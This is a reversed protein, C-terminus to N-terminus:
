VSLLIRFSKAHIELISVFICSIQSQMRHELEILAVSYNPELLTKNISKISFNFKWFVRFLVKFVLITSEVTM